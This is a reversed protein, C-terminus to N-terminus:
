TAKQSKSFCEVDIIKLSGGPYDNIIVNRKIKDAKGSWLFSFFFRRNVKKIVKENSLLPSLVYVPQSAVLSKLVAIKGM